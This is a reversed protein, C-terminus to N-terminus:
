ADWLKRPEGESVLISILMKKHKPWNETIPTVLALLSGMGFYLKTDTDLGFSMLIYATQMPLSHLQNHHISALAGKQTVELRLFGGYSQQTSGLQAPLELCQKLQGKAEEYDLTKAKGQITIATASGSALLVLVALLARKFSNKSSTTFM